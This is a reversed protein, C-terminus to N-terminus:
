EESMSLIFEMSEIMADIDGVDAAKRLQLVQPHLYRKLAQLAM